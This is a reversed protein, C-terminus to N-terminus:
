AQTLSVRMHVTQTDQGAPAGAPIVQIWFAISDGAKLAVKTGGTESPDNALRSDTQNNDASSDDGFNEYLYSIMASWFYSSADINDSQVLDGSGFNTTMPTYIGQLLAPIAAENAVPALVHTNISSAKILAGNTDSSDLAYGVIAGWASSWCTQAHTDGDPYTTLYTFTGGDNTDQAAASAVKAENYLQAHVKDFCQKAGTFKVQSPATAPPADLVCFFDLDSLLNNINGSMDLSVSATVGAPDTADFNTAGRFFGDPGDYQANCQFIEQCVITASM